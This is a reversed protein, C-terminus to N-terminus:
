RRTSAYVTTLPVATDVRSETWALTPQRTVPDISIAAGGVRGLGDGVPELPSFAGIGSAVAVMPQAVDYLPGALTAIARRGARLAVDALVQDEGPPTFRAPPELPDDGRAVAVMVRLHAGDFSTWAATAGTGREPTAIRLRWRLPSDLLVDSVPSRELVRARGFRTTRPRRVAATVARVGGRANSWLLWAAGDTAIAARAADVREDAIRLRRSTSWRGSVGRSRTEFGDKRRIVVLMDGREGVAAAVLTATVNRILTVPATIGAGPRHVAVRLVQGRASVCRGRADHPYEIWAALATGSRNGAFALPPPQQHSFMTVLHRAGRLERGTRAAVAYRTALGGCASGGKRQDLAVAGGSGYVLPVPLERDVVEDGLYPAVRESGFAAAGAPRRALRWGRGFTRAWTALATGGADFAITPTGFPAAIADATAQSLADPASWAAQATPACV